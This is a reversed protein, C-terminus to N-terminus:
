SWLDFEQWAKRARRRRRQRYRWPRGYANGGRLSHILPIHPYQGYFAANADDPAKGLTANRAAAALTAATASAIAGRDDEVTCVLLGATVLVFSLVKAPMSGVASDRGIGFGRLLVFALFLNLLQSLSAEAAHVLAPQYFSGLARSMLYYGALALLESASSVAYITATVRGSFLGRLETNLSPVLTFLLVFTAVYGCRSWVFFDPGAAAGHVDYSCASSLLDHMGYALESLVAYTVFRQRWFSPRLLQGVDGGTAPLLGGVFMLLYALAHTTSIWQEGRHAALASSGLLVSVSAVQILPLLVTSPAGEFARLLCFDHCFACAGGFLAFWFEPHTRPHWKLHAALSAPEDATRLLRYGGSVVLWVATNILGSIAADQAGTLGGGGPSEPPMEEEVPAKSPTQAVSTYGSPSGSITDLTPAVVAASASPREGDDDESIVVDCLVDALAFALSGAALYLLWVPLM